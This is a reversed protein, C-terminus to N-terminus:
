NMPFMLILGREAGALANCVVGPILNTNNESKEAKRVDRVMWGKKEKEEKKRECADYIPRDPESLVCQCEACVDSRM